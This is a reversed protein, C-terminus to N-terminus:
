YISPGVYMGPAMSIIKATIRSQRSHKTEIAVCILLFPLRSTSHMVFSTSLRM